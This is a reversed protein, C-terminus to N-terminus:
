APEFGRPARATSQVAQQKPASARFGTQAGPLLWGSAMPRSRSRPRRRPGTARPPAETRRSRGSRWPRKSGVPRDEATPRFTPNRDRSTDDTLKRHGAGDVGVLFLDERAGSSGYVFTKGDPSVASGLFAPGRVLSVPDSVVKEAAPDFTVREISFDDEVARFAIHRGDASISSQLIERAPM